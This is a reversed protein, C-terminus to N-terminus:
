RGDNDPREAVEDDEVYSLLLKKIKSKNEPTQASNPHAVMNLVGEHTLKIPGYLGPTGPHDFNSQLPEVILGNTPRNRRQDRNM